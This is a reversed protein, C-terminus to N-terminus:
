TRPANKGGKSLNKRASRLFDLRDLMIVRSCSACKLKIDAGTRVVVWENTGCAHPKKMVIHDGLEFIDIMGQFAGEIQFLLVIVERRM